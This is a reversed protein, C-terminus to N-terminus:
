VRLWVAVVVAPAFPLWVVTRRLVPVVVVAADVTVSAVTGLPTLAVPGVVGDLPDAPGGLERTPVDGGADACEVARPGARDSRGAVAGATDPRRMLSTVGSGGPALGSTCPTDLAAVAGATFSGVVVEGRATM